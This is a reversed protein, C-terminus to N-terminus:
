SRKEPLSVECRAHRGLETLRSLYDIRRLRWAKREGGGGLEIRDAFAAAVAVYVCRPYSVQTETDQEM